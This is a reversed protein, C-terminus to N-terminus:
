TTRAGRRGIRLTYCSFSGTDVPVKIIFYIHLTCINKYCKEKQNVAQICICLVCVCTHINHIYTHIYTHVYARTHTHTYTHKHTHIYAHMYTHVYTRVCTHVYAHIYTHMCLGDILPFSATLIKHKLEDTESTNHTKCMRRIAEAWCYLLCIVSRHIRFLGTACMYITRLCRTYSFLDVSLFVIFLVLFPLLCSCVGTSFFSTNKM